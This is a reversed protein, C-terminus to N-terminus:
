SQRQTRVRTGGLCIFEWSNCEDHSVIQCLAKRVVLQVCGVLYTYSQSATTAHLDLNPPVGDMDKRYGKPKDQGELYDDPLKARDHLQQMIAKRIWLAIMKKFHQKSAQLFDVKAGHEDILNWAGNIAKLDLKLM